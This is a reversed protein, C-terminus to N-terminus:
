IITTPNVQECGSLTPLRCRLTMYWNQITKDFKLLPFPPSVNILTIVFIIRGCDGVCGYNPDNDMCREKGEEGQRPVNPSSKCSVVLDRVKCKDKIKRSM